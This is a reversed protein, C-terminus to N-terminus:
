VLGFAICGRSPRHLRPRLLNQIKRQDKACQCHHQKDADISLFDPIRHRCQLTHCGLPQDIACQCIHAEDARIGQGDVVIEASLSIGNGQRIGHIHANATCVVAINRGAGSASLGHLDIVQGLAINGNANSRGRQRHFKEAKLEHQHHKARQQPQKITPVHRLLQSLVDPYEDQAIYIIIYGYAQYQEHRHVFAQHPPNDFQAYAKTRTEM